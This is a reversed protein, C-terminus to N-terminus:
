IGVAFNIICMNKKQAVSKNLFHFNDTCVFIRVAYYLDSGDAQM